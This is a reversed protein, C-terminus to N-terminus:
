KGVVLLSIHKTNRLHVEGILIQGDGRIRHNQYSAERGNECRQVYETKIEKGYGFLKQLAGSRRFSPTCAQLPHTRLALSEPLAGRKQQFRM